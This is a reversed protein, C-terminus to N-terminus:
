QAILSLSCENIINSLELCQDSELNNYYNLTETLKRELFYEYLLDLLEDSLNPNIEQISKKINNLKEM